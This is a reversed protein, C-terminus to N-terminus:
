RRNRREEGQWLFQLREQEGIVPTGEIQIFIRREETSEKQTSKKKGSVVIMATARLPEKLARGNKKLM